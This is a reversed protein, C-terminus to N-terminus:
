AAYAYGDGRQLLTFRAAPATIKTKKGDRMVQIDFSGRERVTIRGVHIGAYKGAPQALRALDGTQFGQVRKVSKPRTRPFGFKDPRTMQRNGRGTATIQLPRHEPNLRVAAGSEGVCAADIWHAKPYGQTTRNFRTRGGTSFSVPPGLASLANGIAYRTANVAAAARLSPRQGQLLREINVARKKDIAQRSPKLTALWAAPLHNDKAENCTRCAIFLNAVRDSGGRSRPVFHEIQLIPDKSLGHCYSCRHQDRTLLYERLECGFLTGRQYAVGQIAPNELLQMDFRVTEVAQAHIPALAQLKRSWSACNDVRSRLSPPLWGQPRRRNDFRAPRYRTKRNRRSRRLARRSDLRARIMEGRHSLEAAFIVHKGTEGEAVLTMGTTKSGPDLKLEVDQVDGNERDQLIITFPIRRYVKARGASLLRRARAPQCPMLPTKNCSLVFVRNM